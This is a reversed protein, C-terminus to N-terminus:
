QRGGKEEVFLFLDYTNIIPTDKGADRRMVTAMRFANTVLTYMEECNRMCSAMALCADEAEGEGVCASKGGEKCGAFAFFNNMGDERCRSVFDEMCEFPRNDM